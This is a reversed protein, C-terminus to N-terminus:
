PKWLRRIQRFDPHEIHPLDWKIPATLDFRKAGNALFKWHDGDSWSWPYPVFDVALGYQHASQWPGAKTTKRALLELQRVPSRYTEFPRFLVKVRGARYESELWAALQKFQERAAPHLDDLSRNIAKPDM